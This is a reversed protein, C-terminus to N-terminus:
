GVEIDPPTTQRGFFRPELKVRGSRQASDRVLELIQAAAAAGADWPSVGITSILAGYEGSAKWCGLGIISMQEPVSIGSIRAAEYLFGANRATATIAMNPKNRRLFRAIHETNTQDSWGSRLECVMIRTDVADRFGGICESEMPELNRNIILACGTVGAPDVVSAALRGAATGDLSLAHPLSDDKAEPFVPLVPIGEKALTHTCALAQESPRILVLGGIGSSTLRDADESTAPQRHLVAHYDRENLGSVVASLLAADEQNSSDPMSDETPLDVAIGIWRSKGLRLAAAAANRYYGLKEAAERVRRRTAEPIADVHPHKDNLVFSVTTISVGAEHAVSRITAAM